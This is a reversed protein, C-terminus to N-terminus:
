SRGRAVQRNAERCAEYMLYDKMHDAKCATVVRDILTERQDESEGLSASLSIVATVLVGIAGVLGVWYPWRTRRQARRQSIVTKSSM